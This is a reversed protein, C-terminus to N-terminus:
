FFHVYEGDSVGCGLFDMLCLAYGNDSCYEELFLGELRNGGQSHLYVVTPIHSLDRKKSYKHYEFFNGSVLEMEKTRIPYRFSVKIREDKDSRLEFDDRIFTIDGFNRM